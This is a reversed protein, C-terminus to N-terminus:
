SDTREHRLGLARLMRGGVALSSYWLAIPWPFHRWVLAPYDCELALDRTTSSVGTADNYSALTLPIYEFRFEPDSFCRMNTEWDAQLRYRLTFPHKLLARRPYLIAQQCINTRALKAASFPGDHTRGSHRWLANGYYISSKDRLLPLVKDLDAVLEDDCGLFLVWDGRAHAVAKNMADYIGQDPESEWFALGAEHRRLLDQTGDTSAGDLVIHEASPGAHRAVSALCSELVAAGNRVVTIVSIVPAPKGAPSSNSM